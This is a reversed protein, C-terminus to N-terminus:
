SVYIFVRFRCFCLTTLEGAQGKHRTPDLTPTIARLINESDAELPAGSMAKIAQMTKHNTHIHDSNGGLTRILFHQRRLVSSSVWMRDKASCLSTFGSIVGYKILM